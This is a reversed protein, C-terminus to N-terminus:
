IGMDGIRHLAVSCDGDAAADSFCLRSLFRFDLLSRWPFAAELGVLSCPALGSRAADRLDIFRQPLSAVRRAPRVPFLVGAIDVRVSPLFAFPLKCFHDALDVGLYCRSSFAFFRAFHIGFLWLVWLLLLTEQPHQNKAM